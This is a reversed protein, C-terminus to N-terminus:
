TPGRRMACLMPAGIAGPVQAFAPNRLPEAERVRELAFDSALARENTVGASAFRPNPPSLM